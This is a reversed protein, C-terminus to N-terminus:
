VESPQLHSARLQRGAAPPHNRPLSPSLCRQFPKPGDAHEEQTHVAAEGAEECLGFPHVAFRSAVGSATRRQSNTQHNNIVTHHPPHTSYPIFPHISPHISPLPLHICPHVSPCISPCNSLHHYRITPLHIALHNFQSPHISPQLSPCESPCIFSHISGQTSTQMSGSIMRCLCGPEPTDTHVHAAAAVALFM